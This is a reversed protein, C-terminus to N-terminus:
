SQKARWREVADVALAWERLEELDDLALPFPGADKTYRIRSELWNLWYKTSVVTTTRDLERICRHDEYDGNECGFWKGCDPDYYPVENHRLATHVWAPVYPNTSM